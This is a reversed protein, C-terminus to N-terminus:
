LHNRKCAFDNLIKFFTRLLYLNQKTFYVAKVPTREPTKKETFHVSIQITHKSFSLKNVM